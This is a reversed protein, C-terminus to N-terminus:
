KSKFSLSDIAEKDILRCIWIYGGRGYELIVDM